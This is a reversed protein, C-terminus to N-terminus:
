MKGKAILRDGIRNITKEASFEPFRDMLMKLQKLYMIRQGARYMPVCLPSLGMAHAVTQEGHAKILAHFDIKNDM